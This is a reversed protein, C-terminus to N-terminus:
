LTNLFGYLFAAKEKRSFVVKFNDNLNKPIVELRLFWEEPLLYPKAYISSIGQTKATQLIGM